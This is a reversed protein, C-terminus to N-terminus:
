NGINLNEAAGFEAKVAPSLDASCPASPIVINSFRPCAAVAASLATL